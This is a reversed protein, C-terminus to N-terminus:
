RRDQLIRLADGADYLDGHEAAAFGEAICAAIADRDAPMWDQDLVEDPSMGSRAARDIIKQQEPKLELNM